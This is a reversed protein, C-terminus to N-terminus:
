PWVKRILDHVGASDFGGRDDDHTVILTARAGGGEERPLVGQTRYWALKKDWAQSYGRDHLLGLHEWIYTQGSIADEVTFDPLRRQGDSGDFPKEYEWAIAQGTLADAIIV